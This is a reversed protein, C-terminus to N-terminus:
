IIYYYNKKNILSQFTPVIVMNSENTIEYLDTQM